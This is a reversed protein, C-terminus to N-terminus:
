HQKEEEHKKKRSVIYRKIFRYGLEIGKWKLYGGAFEKAVNGLVKKVKADPLLRLILPLAALAGDVVSRSSMIGSFAAIYDALNNGEDQQANNKKNGPQEFSFLDDQAAEKTKKRLMRKEKRLEEVSNLKKPYLKM